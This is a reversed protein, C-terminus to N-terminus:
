IGYKSRNFAKASNRNQKDLMIEAVYLALSDPADDNKNAYDFSYTTFAEMFRGYDSNPSYLGKKKFVMRRVVLGRNDRIRIEKKATNFKEDVVCTFVGREKLKMELLKLLSTDTNNEVTFKTIGNDIIKQIIEDYIETIAVRKYLVDVMYHDEGNSTTRFIPMSVNDKGRRTPDLVAFAYTNLEQPLTEYTRLNEWAFELGSPAIPKQQYVCSWLYTDTTDRLELAEKTTMVSECTSKDNEDLLPVAIFVAHEDETHQVYKFRKDDVLPSQQERFERVQNLVDKPSWMTGVFIYKTKSGDRRNYWETTFKRWYLEHVGDNNAEEAGKTIDDLIIARNARVGTVAGDRTRIYHSVLVDANKIKWDSDKTKDFPQNRYNAYEPFVDAYLDSSILDKISRSFGNLLDDSYSLRLISSSSDLGYCWASFYNTIFSKGYSPPLSVGLFKLGDDFVMKNLYYVIPYLAERRNVYVKNITPREWEMYDIFHSLSRRGALAYTRKYIRYVESVQKEDLKPSALMKQTLTLLNEIAYRCVWRKDEETALNFFSVLLDYQTKVLEISTELDKVKKKTFLDTIEEIAKKYEEM